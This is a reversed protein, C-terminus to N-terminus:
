LGYIIAAIRYANEKLSDICAFEQPNHIKGGSVGLSDITPIGNLSMYSADSGGTTKRYNLRNLGADDMVRNISKLLSENTSNLAMSPRNSVLKYESTCGAVYEKSTIEAFYNEIKVLDSEENYRVDCTIKCTDPVVNAASGGEILGCNITINNQDQLKELEIVVHSAQKIASSGEYCKSGHRAVGHCIVEYRCIGKRILVVTDKEYMETNIFCMADKSHNIMWNITQHNSTRSGTEEDSQLLFKITRNTYGANKLAKMALLCVLLGGKCDAAGPGYLLNDFIFTDVSDKPHVTDMHGSIVIPKGIALPNMTICLANGANELLLEDTYWIQKGAYDLFYKEVEDVGAKDCTQSQISVVDKWRDVFEDNLKDIEDFIDSYSNITKNNKFLFFPHERNQVDELLLSAKAYVRQGDFKIEKRHPENYKDEDVGPDLIVLNDRSHSEIFIYHGVHSFYGLHDDHDGGVNVVACGGEDLCRYLDEIKESREFYLDYKKALGNAYEKYKTGFGTNANTDYAIQIASQIPLDYGFFQAVMVGCCIGCGSSKITTTLGSEWEPKKTKTLYILDPYDNQNVLKNM